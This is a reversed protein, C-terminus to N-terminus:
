AYALRPSGAATPRLKTGESGYPDPQGLSEGDVQVIESRKKAARDSHGAYPAFIGADRGPDVRTRASIAEIRVPKVACAPSIAARLATEEEIRTSIAGSSAPDGEECASGGVREVPDDTSEASDGPV